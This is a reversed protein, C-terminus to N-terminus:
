KTGLYLGEEKIYNIVQDPLFYNVSCGEQVKNRIMTSSLDLWPIDVWIVPYNTEVPHGPRKVGVFQVLTFLEELRYWTPLYDVMDGGIIFYYDTDPNQDVLAVMTDYTYSKGQRQLEITEVHLLPNDQIALEIMKLRHTADITEKEDVHPSSFSPMLRVEDLGLAQGVQDAVILHAVHIPNFNGGLIGVQKRKFSKIPMKQEKTEIFQDKQTKM